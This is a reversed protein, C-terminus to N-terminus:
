LHREDSGGADTQSITKLKLSCRHGELFEGRGDNETQVHHSRAYVRTVVGLRVGNLGGRCAPFQWESGMARRIWGM